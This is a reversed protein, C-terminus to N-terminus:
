YVQSIMDELHEEKANTKDFNDLGLGKIKQVGLAKITSM